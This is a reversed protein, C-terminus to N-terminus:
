GGDGGKRGGKRLNQLLLQLDNGVLSNRRAFGGSRV